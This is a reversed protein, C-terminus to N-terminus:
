SKECICIVQFVKKELKGYLKAINHFLNPMGILQCIKAVRNYRPPWSYYLAKSEKIQFGADKCLNGFSMPSWTYLHHNKDNPNFEHLISEAPVVAVLIGGKKLSNFIGKLEDLPRQCHELAHFTIAVDKSESKIASISSVVDIGNKEAEVIAGPNIEVGIRKQCKLASLLYGGGCGFDLVVDTEKIYKEYFVRNAFAGFKGCQKQWGFYTEEYHKTAM